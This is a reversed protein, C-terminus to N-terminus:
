GERLLFVEELPSEQMILDFLYRAQPELGDYFIQTLEYNSASHYPYERTLDRLRKYAKHFTESLGYTFECVVQRKKYLNDRM